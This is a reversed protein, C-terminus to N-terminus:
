EEGAPYNGAFQTHAITFHRELNSKKSHTLNEYCILCTLLGDSKCILAFSETWDRNFERHEEETRREREKTSAINATFGHGLPNTPFVRYLGMLTQPEFFKKKERLIDEYYALM